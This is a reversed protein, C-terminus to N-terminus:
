VAILPSSPTQLFTTTEWTRIKMITSYHSISSPIQALITNIDQIAQEKEEAHEKEEAQKRVEAQENEGAQTKEEAQEKDVAKKKGEAQEKEDDEEEDSDLENALKNVLNEKLFDM